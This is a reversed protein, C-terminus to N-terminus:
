LAPPFGRSLVEGTVAKVTLGCKRCLDTAFVGWVDVDECVWDHRNGDECWQSFLEDRVYAADRRQLQWRNLEGNGQDDEHFYM